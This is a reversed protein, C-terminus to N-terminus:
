LFLEKLSIQEWRAEKLRTAIENADPRNSWEKVVLFPKERGAVAQPTAIFHFKIFNPGVDRGLHKELARTSEYQNKALM